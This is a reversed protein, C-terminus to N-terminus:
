ITFSSLKLLRIVGKISNLRLRGAFFPLHIKKLVSQVIYDSLCLRHIFPDQKLFCIEPDSSLFNLVIILFPTGELVLVPFKKGTGQLEM